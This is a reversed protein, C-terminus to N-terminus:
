NYNTIEIRDLKVDLETEIFEKLFDYTKSINDKVVYLFSITLPIYSEKSLDDRSSVLFLNRSNSVVLSEKSVPVTMDVVYINKRTDYSQMERKYWFYTTIVGCCIQGHESQCMGPTMLHLS